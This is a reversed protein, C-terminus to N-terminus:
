DRPLAFHPRILPYFFYVLLYYRWPCGKPTSSLYLAARRRVDTLPLFPGFLFGGESAPLWRGHGEGSFNHFLISTIEKSLSIARARRREKRLSEDAERLERGDRTMRGSGRRCKCAAPLVPRSVQHCCPASGELNTSRRYWDNDLTNPSRNHVL